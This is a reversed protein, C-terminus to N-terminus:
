TSKDLNNQIMPRLQCCLDLFAQIVTEDKIGGRYGVGWLVGCGLSPLRDRGIRQTIHQLVRAKHRDALSPGIIPSSLSRM